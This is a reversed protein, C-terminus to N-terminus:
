GVAFATGSAFMGLLFNPALVVGVLAAIPGTAMLLVGLVVSLIGWAAGRRELVGQSASVLDSSSAEGDITAEIAIIFALLLLIRLVQVRM